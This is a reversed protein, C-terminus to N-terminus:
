ECALLFLLLLLLLLIFLFSAIVVHKNFTHWQAYMLAAFRIFPLLNNAQFQNFKDFLDVVTPLKRIAGSYKHTGVRRRERGKGKRRWEWGGRHSTHVNRTSFYSWYYEICQAMKWKLMKCTCRHVCVSACRLYKRREPSCSFFFFRSPFPVVFCLMKLMIHSTLLLLIVAVAVIKITASPPTTFTNSGLSRALSLSLSFHYVTSRVGIQINM